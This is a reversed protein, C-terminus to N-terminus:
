PFTFCSVCIGVNVFFNTHISRIRENLDLRVPVLAKLLGKEEGQEASPGTGLQGFYNSGFVYLDELLCEDPSESECLM